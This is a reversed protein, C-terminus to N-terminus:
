FKLVSGEPLGNKKFWGENMELAYQAPQRSPYTPLDQQLVSTVAKMQQVDILKRNRAFYGIDLNILTNKMWFNRIEEDKFIFLMGQNESMKERFMLGQAHQEETEALEVTITKKIKKYLLQIKKKRFIINKEAALASSSSILNITLLFGVLWKLRLEM